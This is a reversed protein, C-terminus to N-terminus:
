PGDSTTRQGYTEIETGTATVVAVGLPPIYGVSATGGLQAAGSLGLAVAIAQGSPFRARLSDASPPSPTGRALRLLRPSLETSSYAGVSGVRVIRSSSGSSIRNDTNARRWILCTIQTAPTQLTRAIAGRAHVPPISRLTNTPSGLRPMGSRPTSVKRRSHRQFPAQMPSRARGGGGRPRIAQLGRARLKQQSDSGPPHAAPSSPHSSFAALLPHPRATRSSPHSSFAALLPHPCPGRARNKPALAPIARRRAIGAARFQPSSPDPVDRREVVRGVV